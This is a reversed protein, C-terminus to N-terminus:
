KYGKADAVNPAVPRNPNAYMKAENVMGMLTFFSQFHSAARQQAGAENQTQYQRALVYDVMAADNSVDITTHTPDPNETDDPLYIDVAAFPYSCIIEISPAVGTPQPYIWFNRPHKEDFMAHRVWRGSADLWMPDYAELDARDAPYIAPGGVNRVARIFALAAAPIAQLSGSVIALAVKQPNEDPKLTAVLNRGENLWRQAEYLGWFVGGADMTISRVRALVDAALVDAM